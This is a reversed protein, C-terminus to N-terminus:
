SSIYISIYIFEPVVYKHTNRAYYFSKNLSNPYEIARGNLSTNWCAPCQSVCVCVNYAYVCFYTCVYTRIHMSHVCVCVSVSVCM